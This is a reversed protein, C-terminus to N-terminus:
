YYLVGRPNTEHTQQNEDHNNQGYKGPYRETIPAQLTKTHLRYATSGTNENIPDHTKHNGESNIDAESHSSNPTPIDKSNCRGIEGLVGEMNSMQEVM